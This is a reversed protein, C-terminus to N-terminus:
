PAQRWSTELRKEAQRGGSLPAPAGEVRGTRGALIELNTRNQLQMLGCEIGVRASPM